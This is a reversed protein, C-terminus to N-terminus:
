ELTCEGTGEVLCFSLLPVENFALDRGYGRFIHYKVGETGYVPIWVYLSSEGRWSPNVAMVVHEPNLSEVAEDSLMGEELLVKLFATLPIGFLEKELEFFYYASSVREPIAQSEMRWQEGSFVEFETPLERRESRPNLDSDIVYVYEERFSFGGAVIKWREYRYTVGIKVVATTNPGFLPNATGIGKASLYTFGLSRWEEGDFLYLSFGVPIIGRIVHVVGYSGGESIVGVLPVSINRQFSSEFRQYVDGDGREGKVERYDPVVVVRGPLEEWKFSVAHFSAKGDRVLTVLLLPEMLTGRIEYRRAWAEKVDGLNITVTEWKVKGSYVEHFGDPYLAKIFIFAGKSDKLELTLWAPKLSEVDPNIVVISVLLIALIVISAMKSDM